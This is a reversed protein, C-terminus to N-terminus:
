NVNPPRLFAIKYENKINCAVQSSLCRARPLIQPRASVRSPSVAPRPLFHFFLLVAIDFQM